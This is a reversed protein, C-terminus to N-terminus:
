GSVPYGGVIPSQNKLRIKWIQTKVKATRYSRLRMEAWDGFLKDHHKEIHFSDRGLFCQFVQNLINM